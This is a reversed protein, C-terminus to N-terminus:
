SSARRRSYRASAPWPGLARRWRHTSSRATNAGALANPWRRKRKDTVNPTTSRGTHPCFARTLFASPRPAMPSIKVLLHMEVLLLHRSLRTPDRRTPWHRTGFIKATSTPSRQADPIPRFARTLCFSPAASQAVAPGMITTVFTLAAPAEAAAHAAAAGAAAALYACQGHSGDRLTRSQTTQRHLLKTAIEKIRQRLPSVAARLNFIRAYAHITLHHSFLAPLNEM